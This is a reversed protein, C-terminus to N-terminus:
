CSSGSVEDVALLGHIIHSGPVKIRPVQDMSGSVYIPYLDYRMVDPSLYETKLSPTFMKFPAARYHSNTSGGILLKNRLKNKLYDSCFRLYWLMIAGYCVPVM